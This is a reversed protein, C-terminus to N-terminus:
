ARLKSREEAVLGIVKEETPRLLEIGFIKLLRANLDIACFVKYSEVKLVYYRQYLLHKAEDIEGRPIEIHEILELASPSRSLREFLRALAVQSERVLSGFEIAAKQSIQIELTLTRGPSM